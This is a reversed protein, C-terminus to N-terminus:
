ANQRDQPHADLGVTAPIEGMESGAGVGRMLGVGIGVLVLDLIGIWRPFGPMFLLFAGVPLFSLGGALVLVVPEKRISAVLGWCALSVFFIPLMFVAPAPQYGAMRFVQIVLLVWLVVLTVAIAGATTQLAKTPNMPPNPSASLSCPNPPIPDSM